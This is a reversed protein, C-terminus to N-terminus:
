INQLLDNLQESEKEREAKEKEYAKDLMKSIKELHAFQRHIEELAFSYLSNILASYIQDLEESSLAGPNHRLFTELKEFVNGKDALYKIMVLIKKEKESSTLQKFGEELAFIDGQSIAM